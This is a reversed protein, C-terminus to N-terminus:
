TDYRQFHFNQQIFITSTTITTNSLAFSLFFVTTTLHSFYEHRLLRTNNTCVTKAVYTHINTMYKPTRESYTSRGYHRVERIWNFTILSRNSYQRLREGEAGCACRAQLQSVHDCILHSTMRTWTITCLLAYAPKVASEHYCHSPYQLTDWVM